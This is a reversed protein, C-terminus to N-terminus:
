RVRVRRVGSVRLIFLALTLLTLACVIGGLGDDAEVSVGFAFAAVQAVRIM